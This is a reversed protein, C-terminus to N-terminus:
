DNIISRYLERFTLSGEKLSKDKLAKKFSEKKDGDKDVDLHDPKRKKSKKEERCECDKPCGCPKSKESIVKYAEMLLQEDKFVM